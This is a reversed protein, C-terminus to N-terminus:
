FASISAPSQQVLGVYIAPAMKDELLVRVILDKRHCLSRRRAEVRKYSGKNM